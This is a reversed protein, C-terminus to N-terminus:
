PASTCPGDNTVGTLNEGSRNIRLMLLDGSEWPQKCVDWTLTRKAGDVMESGDDFDLRLSVSGDLAIFDAHHGALSVSPEFEITARGSEWAIKGLTATSGGETLSFSTPTLVGNATDGGVATGIAVPDFFAEHVADTPAAATIIWDLQDKGPDPTFDCPIEEYHQSQTSYRYVGSPLPRATMITVRYGNSPDEDEDDNQSRFLNTDQGSLWFNIYGPERLPESAYIVTGQSAGSALQREEQLPTWLRGHYAEWDRYFQEYNLVIGICRDYGEIDEGGEIWAIKSRLDALSITPSPDGTPSTSDTIFAPNSAGSAGSVGGQAPLWAPDLTDITYGESNKYHVDTFVFEADSDSAGSAGSDERGEPLSLFLVAEREDWITNRGSTSAQVTIEAPGSGKLYEIARFRLAHPTVSLLLARVIVDSVYIRNEVSPSAAGYFEPEPIKDFLVAEPTSTPGPAVSETNPTASAELDPVVGETDAAASAGTGPAVSRSEGCAAVVFVLCLAFALTVLEGWLCRGSSHIGLNSLM